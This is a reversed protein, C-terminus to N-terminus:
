KRVFSLTKRPPSLWWHNLRGSTEDLFYASDLTPLSCHLFTFGHSFKLMQFSNDKTYSFSCIWTTCWMIETIYSVPILSLLARLRANLTNWKATVHCDIKSESTSNKFIWLNWNSSCVREISHDKHTVAKLAISLAERIIVIIQVPFIASKMRRKKAFENVDCQECKIDYFIAM